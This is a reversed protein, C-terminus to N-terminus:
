KSPRTLNYDNIKKRLTTPSIDLIRATQSINWDKTELVYQIYGKEEEALSHLPRKQIVSSPTESASDGLFHIHEPLIQPSESLAIARTIVNQLERVNGPWPHQSLLQLAQDSFCEITRNMNQGIRNLFHHALLPIDAQRERLPPILIEGVVVRYYLDERFTGEKVMEALNRHTAFVARGKFYLPQNGGVREYQKEQLVRLIKAQLDLDMDGIEDFFVTGNQAQELKGPKQRDAGTFAGKEHGFLESELLTSVIASCNIAVFPKGPASAGHIARAVLEKGTGSEGHILVNVQSRSFRGVQKLIELVKPDNGIIEDPQTIRTEIPATQEGEPSRSFERKVKELVLEVDNVDFPKRLYDHAGKRMAEITAAMDQRGSIIVVPLNPNSSSIQDLVELGDGDPLVLDLLVLDPCLEKITALGEEASSCVEVCYGKGGMILQISRCLAVDDDIILLKNMRQVEWPFVYQLFLDKRRLSLHFIAEM